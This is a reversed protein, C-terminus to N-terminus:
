CRATAREPGAYHSAAAREPGLLQSSAAREPGLVPSRSKRARIVSQKKRQGQQSIATKM